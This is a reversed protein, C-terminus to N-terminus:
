LEDLKRMMLEAMADLRSELNFMAQACTSEHDNLLRKIERTM